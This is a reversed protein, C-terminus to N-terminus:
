AVCVSRQFEVEASFGAYNEWVEEQGLFFTTTHRETALVVVEIRFRSMIM